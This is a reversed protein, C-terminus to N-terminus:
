QVENLLMATVVRYRVTQPAEDKDALVLESAVQAVEEAVLGTRSWLGEAIPILPTSV